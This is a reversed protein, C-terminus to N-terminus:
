GLLGGRDSSLLQRDSRHSFQDAMALRGSVDLECRGLIICIDYISKFLM